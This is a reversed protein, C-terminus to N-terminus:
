SVCSNIEHPKFTWRNFKTPKIPTSSTFQVPFTQTVKESTAEWFRSGFITSEDLSGNVFVRIYRLELCDLRFTLPGSPKRRWFFLLICTSRAIICFFSPYPFGSGCYRSRPNWIRWPPMRKIDLFAKWVHPFQPMERQLHPGNAPRNSTVVLFIFVLLPSFRPFVSFPFTNRQWSNPSRTSLKGLSRHFLHDPYLFLGKRTRERWLALLSFM